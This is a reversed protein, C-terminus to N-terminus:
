KTLILKSQRTIRLRYIQGAHQICIERQGQFLSRSDMCIPAATADSEGSDITEKRM